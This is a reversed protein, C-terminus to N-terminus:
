HVNYHVHRGLPRVLSRSGNAQTLGPLSTRISTEDLVSDAKARTVISMM